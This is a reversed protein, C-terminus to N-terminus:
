DAVQRLGQPTYENQIRIEYVGAPLQIEAHEEHRLKVPADKVELYRKMTQENLVFMANLDAIAHSHGTVEGHALVVRGGERPIEKDAGKMAKKDTQIIIVDGQRYCKM